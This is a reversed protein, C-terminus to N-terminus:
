WSIKELEEDIGELESLDLDSEIEITNIEYEGEPAAEEVVQVEEGVSIDEEEAAKKEACGCLMLLNVAIALIFVAKLLDSKKM